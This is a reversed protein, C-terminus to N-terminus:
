DHFSEGPRHILRQCQHSRADKARAGGAEPRIDHPHHFDASAPYEAHLRAEATPIDATAEPISAYRGCTVTVLGNQSIWILEFPKDDTLDNV